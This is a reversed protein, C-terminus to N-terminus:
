WGHRDSDVLVQGNLYTNDTCIGIQTADDAAPEGRSYYFHMATQPNSAVVLAQVKETTNHRKKRSVIYIFMEGEYRNLARDPYSGTDFQTLIITGDKITDNTCFGVEKESITIDDVGTFRHVAISKAEELSKAVVAFRRDYNKSEVQVIYINNKPIYDMVMNIMDSAMNTKKYLAEQYNKPPPSFTTNATLTNNNSYITQTIDMSQYQSDESQKYEMMQQELTQNATTTPLFPIENYKQLGTQQGIADLQNELETIAEFIVNKYQTYEAPKMGSIREGEFDDFAFLVFYDAYLQRIKRELETLDKFNNDTHRTSWFTYPIDFEQENNRNYSETIIMDFVQEIQSRNAILANWLNNQICIKAQILTSTIFKCEEPIGQKFQQGFVVDFEDPVNASGDFIDELMSVGLPTRRLNFMAGRALSYVDQEEKDTRNQRNSFFHGSIDMQDNKKVRELPAPAIFPLLPINPKRVVKVNSNNNNNTAIKPIRQRKNNPEQQKTEGTIESLPVMKFGQNNENTEVRILTNPDLIPAPLIYDLPININDTEVPRKRNEFVERKVVTPPAYKREEELVMTVSNNNNNSQMYQLVDQKARSRAEEESIDEMSHYAFLTEELERAIYDQETSPKNFESLHQYSQRLRTVNTLIFKAM